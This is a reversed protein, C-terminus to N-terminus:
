ATGLAALLTVLTLGDLRNHEFGRDVAGSGDRIWDLFASPAAAGPLDDDRHVGLKRREVTQLRVDPLEPLSALSCNSETVVRVSPQPPWIEDQVSSAVWYGIVIIVIFLGVAAIIMRKKM